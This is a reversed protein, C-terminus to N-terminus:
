LILLMPCNRHDPITPATVDYPLNDVTYGVSLAFSNLMLLKETEYTGVDEKGLRTVMKKDNKREFFCCM